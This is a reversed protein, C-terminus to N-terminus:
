MSVPNPYGPPRPHYKRFIQRLRWFPATGLFSLFDSDFSSDDIKGPFEKRGPPFLLGPQVCLPPPVKGIDMSPPFFKIRIFSLPPFKGYFIPLPIQSLLEIETKLFTLYYLPPSFSGESRPPPPKLAIPPSWNYSHKWFFSMVLPLPFHTHFIVEM